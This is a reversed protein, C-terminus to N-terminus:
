WYNRSSTCRHLLDHISPNGPEVAREGEAADKRPPKPSLPASLRSSSARRTWATAFTGIKAGIGTRGASFFCIRLKMIDYVTVCRNEEGSFVENAVRPCAIGSWGERDTTFLSSEEWRKQGTQLLAQKKSIENPKHIRRCSMTCFRTPHHQM